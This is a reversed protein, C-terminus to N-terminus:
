VGSGVPPNVPPTIAAAKEVPTPSTVPEWQDSLSAEGKSVEVITEHPVLVTGDGLANGAEGVYRALDPSPAM